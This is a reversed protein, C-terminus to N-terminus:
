PKGKVAVHAFKGAEFIEDTLDAQDVIPPAGAVPAVEAIGDAVIVELALSDSGM